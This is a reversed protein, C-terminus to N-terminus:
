NFNSDNGKVEGGRQARRHHLGNCLPQKLEVMFGTSM